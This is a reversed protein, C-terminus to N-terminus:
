IRWTIPSRAELTVYYFGAGRGYGARSLGSPGVTVDLEPYGQNPLLENSYAHTSDQGSAVAPSWLVTVIALVILLRNM